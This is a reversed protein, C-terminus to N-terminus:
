VWMVGEVVTPPTNPTVSISFIDRGQWNCRGSNKISKLTMVDRVAISYLLSNNTLMKALRPNGKSSYNLWLLERLIERVTAYTKGVRLYAVRLRTRSRM